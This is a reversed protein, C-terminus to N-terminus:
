QDFSGEFVTEIFCGSSGKTNGESVNVSLTFAQIDTGTLNNAAVEIDYDRNDDTGPMWSIIGTSSDITMDTPKSNLSYTPTPLGDANVDYVYLEGIAAKTNPNSTIQPISVQPLFENLANYWVDAMLDYGMTNPHLEDEMDLGIVYQLGAGDEMDVIIIKDGNDIRSIAMDEVNDNFDTTTQSYAARNIIRALVVTTQESFRDIEDLIFEVDDPDTDVENTGIHLLIVDAPNNALYGYVNSAIQSDTFGPHGENDPDFPPSFDEGAIEDGVFDFWYGEFDLSEWLPLRYAVRESAPRIDGEYDDYTISDGLPMIRVPEDFSSCYGKSIYYHLRIEKESIIDNYIAIEDIIGEYHEIPTGDNELYGITLPRVSSFGSNYNITVSDELEGDVYLRNQNNISDRVAVIHHWINNDLRRQGELLWGGGSSPALFFAAQGFSNLGLWWQMSSFSDDRGVLVERTSINSSKKIWLEISFSDSGAFDFITNATVEIGTDSGNFNQGDNVIGGSTNTPCRGSCLGTNTDGREDLYGRFDQGTADEEMKWYSIMGTPCDAFSLPISGLVNFTLSSLLVFAIYLFQKQRKM